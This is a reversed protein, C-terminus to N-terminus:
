GSKESAESQGALCMCFPVKPSVSSLICRERRWKDLAAEAGLSGLILLLQVRLFADPPMALASQGQFRLENDVLM